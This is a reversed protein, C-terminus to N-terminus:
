FYQIIEDVNRSNSTTMHIFRRCTQCQAFKDNSMKNSIKPGYFYNYIYLPGYMSCIYALAWVFLYIYVLFWVICHQATIRVHRAKVQQVGSMVKPYLKDKTCVMLVRMDPDIMALPGHKLEGCLIGESHVYTLEKIKQLLCLPQSITWTGM